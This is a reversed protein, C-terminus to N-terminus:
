EPLLPVEYDVLGLDALPIGHVSAQEKLIFLVNAYAAQRGKALAPDLTEWAKLSSRVEQKFAHSFAKLCEEHAQIKRSMSKGKIEPQATRQLLVWYMSGNPM